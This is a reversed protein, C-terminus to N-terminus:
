ERGERENLMTVLEEYQQQTIRNGLYFVDLKQMMEEYSNYFGKQITQKCLRYTM